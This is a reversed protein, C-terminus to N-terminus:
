TLTLILSFDWRTKARPMGTPWSWFCETWLRKLTTFGSKHSVWTMELSILAMERYSNTKPIIAQFSRETLIQSKITARLSTKWLSANSSLGGVQFYLQHCINYIGKPFHNWIARRPVAWSLNTELRSLRAPTLKYRNLTMFSFDQQYFCGMLIFTSILLHWDSHLSFERWHVSTRTTVRDFRFFFFFSIFLCVVFCLFVFHFNGWM